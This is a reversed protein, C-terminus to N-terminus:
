AAYRVGDDHLQDADAPEGRDTFPDCTPVPAVASTDTTRLVV